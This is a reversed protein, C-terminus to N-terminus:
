RRPAALADEALRRVGPKPDHSAVDTLTDRVQASESLHRGLVRVADARVHETPDARVSQVLVPLYPDIPRFEAAFIAAARVGADVDSRITATLLEDARPGEVLRLARAAAARIPPEPDALAGEM